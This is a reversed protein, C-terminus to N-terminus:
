YFLKGDQEGELGIVVPFKGTRETTQGNLMGIHCMFHRFQGLILELRTFDCGDPKECLMDDTLSAIYAETKKKVEGLYRLLEADDLVIESPMDPNSPLAGFEERERYAAPNELWKDCSHIAHFCYRWAPAGCVSANRDYTKLAVSMNYFIIDTQKLITECLTKM